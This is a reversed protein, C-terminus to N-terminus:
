DREIHPPDEPSFRKASRLTIFTKWAFLQAPGMSDLGHDDQSRIHAFYHILIM